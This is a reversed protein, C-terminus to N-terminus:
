LIKIFSIFNRRNNHQVQKFSYFFSFTLKLADQLHYLFSYYQKSPKPSVPYVRKMGPILENENYSKDEQQKAKSLAKMRSLLTGTLSRDESNAGALNLNQSTNTYGQFLQTNKMRLKQLLDSFTLNEQPSSVTTSPRNM